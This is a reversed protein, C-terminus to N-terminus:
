IDMAIMGINTKNKTKKQKKSKLILKRIKQSQAPEVCREHKKKKKRFISASSTVQEMDEAYPTILGIM